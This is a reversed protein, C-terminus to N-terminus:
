GPRRPRAAHQRHHHEAQAELRAGKGPPITQHGDSRCLTGAPLTPGRVSHDRNFSCVTRGPTGATMPGTQRETVHVGSTGAVVNIPVASCKMSVCAAGNTGGAGFGRVDGGEVSSIIRM